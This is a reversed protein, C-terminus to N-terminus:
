LARRVSLMVREYHPRLSAFLARPSQGIFRVSGSATPLILDLLSYAADGNEDIRDCETLVGAVGDVEIVSASKLGKLNQRLNAAVVQPEFLTDSAAIVGIAEPCLNVAASPALLLMSNTEHVQWGVPIEITYPYIIEIGAVAVRSLTPPSSDGAGTTARESEDDDSGLVQERASQLLFGGRAAINKCLRKEEEGYSSSVFFERSLEVSADNVEATSPRWSSSESLTSGVLLTRPSVPIVLRCHDEVNFVLGPQFEKQARAQALAVLDGLVYGNSDTHIVGWKLLKLAEQRQSFGGKIVAAQATKAVEPWNFRQMVGDVGGFREEFLGPLEAIGQKAIAGLLVPSISIGKNEFDQSVNAVVSQELTPIKQIARELALRTLWNIAEVGGDRLYKGRVLLHAAFSACDSGMAPVDSDPSLIRRLVEAYATELRTLVDDAGGEEASYFYSKAGVNRVNPEAAESDQRFLWLFHQDKASRSSFQRLLFQPIYHQNKVVPL